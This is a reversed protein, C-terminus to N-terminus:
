LGKDALFEATFLAFMGIEEHSSSSCNFVYAYEQLWTIGMIRYPNYEQIGKFLVGDRLASSIPGYELHADDPHVRHKVWDSDEMTHFDLEFWREYLKSFSQIRAGRAWAFKLRQINM